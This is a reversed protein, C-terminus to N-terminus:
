RLQNLWQKIKSYGVKEIAKDIRNFIEKYMKCYPDKNHAGVLGDISNAMCGGRCVKYHECTACSALINASRFQSAAIATKDVSGEVLNGLKMVKLDALEQCFYFDGNPEISVGQSHCKDTFICSEFEHSGAGEALLVKKNVMYAFPEVAADGRMFWDDFIEIFSETIATREISTDATREGAYSQRAAILKLPYGQIKAEEYEKRTLEKNSGAVYCAGLSVGRESKVKLYNDSFIQRYRTSSGKFKRASSFNDISTGVNGDFLDYVDLMKDGSMILNTQLGIELDRFNSLKSEVIEKVERLRNLSLTTLEGGLMCVTVATDKPDIKLSHMYSKLSDCSEGLETNSMVAQNNTDTSCYDCSANCRNTIRLMVCFHDNM